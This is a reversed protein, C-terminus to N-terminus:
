AKCSVSSSSAAISVKFGNDLSVVLKGFQKGSKMDLFLSDIGTINRIGKEVRSVVPRIRHKSVFKVMDEFEKRSGMTSGRVEINKLVAQMLFSMRPGATMGYVVIVGGEKFFTLVGSNKETQSLCCVKLVRSGAEIIDGGGGDIIADLQNNGGLAAALKKEWGKERYNFGGAAGLKVAKDIKEQSSSTVWVTAGRSVAIALAILAVGGGIGTVLVNKGPAINEERAKTIVARWATLGTLPLAAAEVDSLHVPAVEVQSQEVAVYESFLGNKNTGGLIQYGSEEPASHAAVWGLGPNIIVRKGLWSSSASGGKDVVIGCGDSGLPVGFTTGPYLHQRIFLDRHNLAAATIRVLLDTAGLTPLPIEDLSLPYYM